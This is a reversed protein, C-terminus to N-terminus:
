QQRHLTLVAQTSNTLCDQITNQSKIYEHTLIHIMVMAVAATIVM